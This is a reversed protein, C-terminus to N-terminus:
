SLLPIILNLRKDLYIVEPSDVIVFYPTRNENIPCIAQDSFKMLCMVDDKIGRSYVIRNDSKGIYKIIYDLANTFTIDWKAIPKFDNRGIKKEFDENLLCIAMKHANTDYYKEEILKGRMAGDPVYLLGHFHLRGSQSREFCGMYRWDWNNHLNKLKDKLTKVFTEENHKKSDYTFTVFYNWDNNLAKRRFRNKRAKLNEKQRYIFKDLYEILWSDNEELGYEKIITYDSTICDYLAEKMEENSKTIELFSFYLKKLEENLKIYFSDVPKRGKHSYPFHRNAWDNTFFTKKEVEDRLGLEAKTKKIIEETKFDSINRYLQALFNVGDFRLKCLEM